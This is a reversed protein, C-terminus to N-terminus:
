RQCQTVLRTPCAPREERAAVRGLRVGDSAEPGGAPPAAPQTPGLLVSRVWHLALAPLVRTVSPVRWAAGMWWPLEAM